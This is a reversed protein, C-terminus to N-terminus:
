GFVRGERNSEARRSVLKDLCVALKLSEATQPQGDVEYTITRM